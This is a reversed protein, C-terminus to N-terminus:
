AMVRWVHGLQPAAATAAPAAAAHAAEVDAATVAGNPGTGAIGDIAVGLSRALKRAKPSALARREVAPEEGAAIVFAIVTGVPVEAGEEASVGSLTGGAPAEIEVTVKDTEVELLPEGKAIVDGEHKLWRLVKGTEQA